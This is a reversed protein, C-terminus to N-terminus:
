RQPENTPPGEVQRASGPDAIRAEIDVNIIPNNIRGKGNAKPAEVSIVNQGGATVRLEATGQKQITLSRAKVTAHFEIDAPAAAQAAVFLFLVM